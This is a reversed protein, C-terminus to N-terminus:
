KRIVVGQDFSCPACLLSDNLMMSKIETTACCKQSSLGTVIKIQDATLNALQLTFTQGTMNPLLIGRNNTDTSDVVIPYNGGSLLSIVKLDSPKYPSKPSLFLDAGTTKSVIRVKMMTLAVPYRPCPGCNGSGDRCSAWVMASLVLGIYLKKM